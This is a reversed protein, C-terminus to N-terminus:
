IKIERPLELHCDVDIVSNIQLDNEFKENKKKM